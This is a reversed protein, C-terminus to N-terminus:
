VLLISQQNHHDLIDLKNHYILDRVHSLYKVFLNRGYDDKSNFNYNHDVLMYIFEKDIVSTPNKIYFLADTFYVDDKDKLYINDKYEDFKNKIDDITKLDYDLWQM